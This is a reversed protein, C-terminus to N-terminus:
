HDQNVDTFMDMSNTAVSNSILVFSQSHEAIIIVVYAM